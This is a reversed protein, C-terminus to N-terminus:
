TINEKRMDHFSLERRKRLTNPHLQQWAHNEWMTQIKKRYVETRHPSNLQFRNQEPNHFYSWLFTKCGSVEPGWSNWQDQDAKGKFSSAENRQSAQIVTFWTFKVGAAGGTEGQEGWAPEINGEKVTPSSSQVQELGTAAGGAKRNQQGCTGWSEAGWRQLWLWHRGTSRICVLIVRHAEAEFGTSSGQDQSVRTKNQRLQVNFHPTTTIM